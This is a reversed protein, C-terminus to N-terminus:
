DVKCLHFCSYLEAMNTHIALMWEQQLVPNWQM